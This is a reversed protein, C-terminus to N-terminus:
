VRGKCLMLEFKQSQNLNVSDEDMIHESRPALFEELALDTYGTLGFPADTARFGSKLGGGHPDKRELAHIEGDPVPDM